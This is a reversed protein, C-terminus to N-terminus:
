RLGARRQRRVINAGGVAIANQVASANNSRNNGAGGNRGRFGREAIGYGGRTGLFNGENDFRAYGSYTRTGNENQRYVERTPM